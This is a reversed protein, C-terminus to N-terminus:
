HLLNRLGGGSITTNFAGANLGPLGFSDLSAFTVVAPDYTISGQLGLIKPFDYARIRVVVQTSPAGSLTDMSLTQASGDRAFLCIIVLAAFSKCCVSISKVM